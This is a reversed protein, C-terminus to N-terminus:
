IWIPSITYGSYRDVSWQGAVHPGSMNM